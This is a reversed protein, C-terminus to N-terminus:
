HSKLIPKYCPLRSKTYYSSFICYIDIYPLQCTDEVYGEDMSQTQLPGSARTNEAQLVPSGFSIIKVLFHRIQVTDSM